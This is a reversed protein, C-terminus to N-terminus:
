LCGASVFLPACDKESMCLLRCEGVEIDISVVVGFSHQEEPSECGTVMIPVVRTATVQIADKLTDPIGLPNQKIIRCIDEHMEMSAVSPFEAEDDDDEGYVLLVGAKYLAEPSVRYETLAASLEDELLELLAQQFGYNGAICQKIHASKSAAFEEFDARAKAELAERERTKRRCEEKDDRRKAAQLRSVAESLYALRPDDTLRFVFGEEVIHEPSMGLLEQVNKEVEAQREEDDILKEALFAQLGSITPDAFYHRYGRLHFDYPAGEEAMSFNNVFVRREEETLDADPSIELIEYHSPSDCGALFRAERDCLLKVKWM